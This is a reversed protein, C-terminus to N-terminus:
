VLVVGGAPDLVGVVTGAPVYLPGPALAGVGAVGPVYIGPVAAVEAAASITSGAPV